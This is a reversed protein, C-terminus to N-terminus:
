GCRLFQRICFIPDDKEEKVTFILTGNVHSIYFIAHCVFLSAALAYCEVKGRIPIPVQDGLKRANRSRLLKRPIQRCSYLFLINRLILSSVEVNKQVAVSYIRTRRGQEMEQVMEEM